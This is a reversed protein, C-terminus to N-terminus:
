SAEKCALLQTLTAVSSARPLELISEAIQGALADGVVPGALHTFRCRVDQPSFQLGSTVGDGRHGVQYHTIDTGDRLHVTVVATGPQLSPEPAASIDQMVGWAREDNLRGPAFWDLFTDGEPVPWAALAVGLSYYLNGQAERVTGPARRKGEPLATGAYVEPPVRVEVACVESTDRVNGRSLAEMLGDAVVHLSTSHAYPKFSVQGVIGGTRGAAPPRMADVMAPADVAGSFARFFGHRGEFVKRPGPYGEQALRASLIGNRAAFGAHLRKSEAAPAFEFLGAAQTAALGLADAIQGSDLGLVMSAGAAAGLVGCIGTPHFGLDHVRGPPFARGATCAMEYGAAVATLLAQGSTPVCGAAAICAPVVSVGPHVGSTQDFDDLGVTHAMTGNVLAAGLGDSRLGMGWLSCPGAGVQVVRAATSTTEDNRGALAVGVTDMVRLSAQEAAKDTLGRKRLLKLLDAWEESVTM